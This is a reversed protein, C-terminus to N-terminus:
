TEVLARALGLNVTEEATVSSVLKGQRPREAQRSGIERFGIDLGEAAPRPGLYHGTELSVLWEDQRDDPCRIAWTEPLEDLEHRVQTTRRSALRDKAALIIRCRQRAHVAVEGRFRM